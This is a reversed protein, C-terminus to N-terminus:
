KYNRFMHLIYNKTKWFLLDTHSFQSKKLKLLMHLHTHLYNRLNNQIKTLIITINKRLMHRFITMTWPILDKVKWIDIKIKERMIKNM